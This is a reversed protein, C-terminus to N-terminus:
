VAFTCYINVPAAALASNGVTVTIGVNVSIDLTANQSFRVAGTTTLATTGACGPALNVTYTIPASGHSLTQTGSPSVQVYASSTYTVSIPSGNLAIATTPSITFTAPNGLGTATNCTLAGPASSTLVAPTITDTITSTVDNVPTAGVQFQLITSAAVGACGTAPTINLIAGNPNATSLTLSSGNALTVALAGGPSVPLGILLTASGTLATAPKVTITGPTAVGTLQNCSVAGATAQLLNAAQMTGAGSTLALLAFLTKSGKTKMVSLDM